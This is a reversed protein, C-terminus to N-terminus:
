HALHNALFQLGFPLHARYYTWSHAGKSEFYNLTIGNAVMAARFLRNQHLVEDETAVDAYLAPVPKGATRMGALLTAPDRARWREPSLGFMPYMGDWRPGTARRLENTTRGVRWSVRGTTAITSSDPLLGPTLIGAHSAAAAFTGPFRAIITFAGYGGM